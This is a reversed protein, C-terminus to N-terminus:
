ARGRRTGCVETGPSPSHPVAHYLQVLSEERQQVGLVQARSVPEAM